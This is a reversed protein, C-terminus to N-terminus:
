LQTEGANEINRAIRNKEPDKDSTYCQFTIEKHWNGYPNKEPTIAVPYAGSERCYIRGGQKGIERFNGFGLAGYNVGPHDTDFYHEM